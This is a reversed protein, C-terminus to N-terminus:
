SKLVISVNMLGYLSLKRRLKTLPLAIKSFGEIFRRYYRVFGLFSM